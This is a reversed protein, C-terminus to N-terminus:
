PSVDISVEVMLGPKLRADRQDLAVRVPVRQTIKTFNGSPNPSPLLAFQNTAANGVRQVHGHLTLDPYADITVEVPQGVVVSGVETEKIEAEVWVKDPDHVMMVWQGAQVFNGTEAMTKDVVGNVPSVLRRDAIEQRVQDAQAALTQHQQRQVDIQRDLVQLQGRQAQASALAATHSQLQAEAQRRDDQRQLLTSQAEDWSKKPTNGSKLLEDARNFNVEALALQHQTSAVAAETAVVQAQADEVAAETTHDTTDRQAISQRIQADAAALSAEIAALRLRADRDDIQALAQGTKIVDGEIVPRAMLWGDLRSAITVIEGAVRADNESVHVARWRLRQAGYGGVVAVLVLFFAVIALRRRHSQRPVPPATLPELRENAPVSPAEAVHVNM